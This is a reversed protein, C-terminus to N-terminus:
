TSATGDPPRPTVTVELVDAWPQALTPWVSFRMRWRKSSTTSAAPSPPSTTPTSRRSCRSACSTAASSATARPTSSATPGSSGSITLADAVSEDFDITAVVHSRQDPDAVFPTAYSSAEAWGYITAASQDCRSAAWELGGQQNIWEVQQNALFITALAPTNYTQDKRSNELAIRPRAVRAGLPGVRRDARHARHRRAVGRRALARRRLGPVEAPRLLLRRGREARLAPRRGGLHRRRDRPRRRRRAARAAHGRRHVDRQPHPLLHRRRSRRRPAPPHRSRRLPQGARRPAAGRRHGRRVEVLVRRLPPAPQAPRHARVLRRGLVVHHRRQRAAGRLRRPPRVARRATACRASRSSCRAQRHSTGLYDRGSAALAEVAEPRVKSPGCGFRGDAPLLDVPIKIDPLPPTVRGHHRVSTAGWRGPDAFRPVISRRRRRRHAHWMALATEDGSSGSNGVGRVRARTLWRTPAMASDAVSATSALALASLAAPSGTIPKPAPSGSKGVGAWMTSAATSAARSGLFWLYM